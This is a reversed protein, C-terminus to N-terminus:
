SESKIKQDTFKQHKCRYERKQNSDPAFISNIHKKSHTFNPFYQASLIAWPDDGCVFVAQKEGDQNTAQRIFILAIKGVTDIV